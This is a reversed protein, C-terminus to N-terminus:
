LALLRNLWNLWSDLIHPAFWWTGFLALFIVVAIGVLWDKM